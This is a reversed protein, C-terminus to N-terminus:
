GLGERERKAEPLPPCAPLSTASGRVVRANRAAQDSARHSGVASGGLQADEFVARYRPSYRIQPNQDRRAKDLGIALCKRAADSVEIRSRKVLPNFLVM